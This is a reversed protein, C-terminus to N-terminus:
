PTDMFFVKLLMEQIAPYNPLLVDAGGDTIWGTVENTGMTYTTIANEDTLKGFRTFLPLLEKFELDTEVANQAAGVVQASNAIAEFSISKKAMAQIVEQARRTRDLDSSNYRARVYWLAYEGDMPVVGPEVVCWREVNFECHDEMAATVNVDIGGLADVIDKFGEFDVMAYHDPAFGFNVYLTDSLLEYGGYPQVTNIRQEGFGPIQVWLDRPFSLLNIKSDEKNVVVLLMVDTRYGSEPRYDSGLLMYSKVDGPISLGGSTDITYSKESEAEQTLTAMLGPKGERILNISIAGVVAIVVLFPIMLLTIILGKKSKKPKEYNM